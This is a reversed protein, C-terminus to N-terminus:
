GIKVAKRISLCKEKGKTRRSWQFLSAVYDNINSRVFNLTNELFTSVVSM